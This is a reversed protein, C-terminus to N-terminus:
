NVNLRRAGYKIRRKYQEDTEFRHPARWILYFVLAAWMVTLLVIGGVYLNDGSHLPFPSTPLSQALAFIVAVGLLGALPPRVCMWTKFWEWATAGRIGHRCDSALALTLFVTIGVSLVGVLWRGATMNLLAAFGFILIMLLLGILNLISIRRAYIMIRDIRM